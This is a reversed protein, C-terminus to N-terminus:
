FRQTRGEATVHQSLPVPTPKTQCGGHILSCYRAKNPMEMPNKPPKRRVKEPVKNTEHMTERIDLNDGQSYTRGRVRVKQGEIHTYPCRRVPVTKTSFPGVTTRTGIFWDPGDGSVATGQTDGQGV